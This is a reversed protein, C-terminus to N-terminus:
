EPPRSVEGSSSNVLVDFVNGEQDIRMRWQGRDMRISLVRGGVYHDRAIDSAERRSVPPETESTFQNSRLDNQIPIQQQEQSAALTFTASATVFSFMLVRIFM